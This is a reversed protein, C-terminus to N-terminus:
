ACPQQSLTEHADAALESLLTSTQASRHCWWEGTPSGALWHTEWESSAKAAATGLWGLVATADQDLLTRLVFRREGIRRGLGLDEAARALDSATLIVATRGPALLGDLFEGVPGHRPDPLCEADALHAPLLTSAAPTRTAEVALLTDLLGAWARYAPGGLDAVRRLFAPVWPLLHEVLLAERARTWAAREIDDDTDRERELLSAYAGLLVTLHDPEATSTQGLARLFGAVRDRAIGGLKGEAGLHVSAYPFLQFLLVDTHEAATPAPIGLAGALARHKEEPPEAFVALTRILEIM